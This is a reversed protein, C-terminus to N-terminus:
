KTFESVSYASKGLVDCIWHQPDDGDQRYVIFPQQPGMDFIASVTTGWIPDLEGVSTVCDRNGRRTWVESIRRRTPPRGMKSMVNARLVEYIREGAADDNFPIFFRDVIGSVAEVAGTSL